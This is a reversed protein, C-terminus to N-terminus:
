KFKLTFYTSAKPTLKGTITVRYGYSNHDPTIHFSPKDIANEMVWTGAETNQWDLIPGAAYIEPDEVDSLFFSYFIM